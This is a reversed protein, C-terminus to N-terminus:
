VLRHRLLPASVAFHSLKLLRAPGPDALLTLVLHISPRKRTVDDQLYGYLREYRLDMAPALCILLVDIDFRDLGFTQALQELRPQVGVSHAHEVLSQANQCANHYAQVFMQEEAAPLVVTQGWSTALPRSLLAQVEEDSIYLGRFADGPDQGAMQWRRTERRILIDVRSLEAQLHRLSLDLEKSIDPLASGRLEPYVM